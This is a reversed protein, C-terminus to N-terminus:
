AGGLLDSYSSAIPEGLVPKLATLLDHLAREAQAEHQRENVLAELELFSGLNEVQDLHVRVEGHMHLTRQKAVVVWPELAALDFRAEAEDPTYLSYDSNRASSDDTRFYHIWEDPRGM